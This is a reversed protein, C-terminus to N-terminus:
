TRGYGRGFALASTIGSIFIFICAADSLGFSGLTWQALNSGRTHDILIIFLSIGRFFDLRLDRRAHSGSSSM